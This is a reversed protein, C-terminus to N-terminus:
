GDDGRVGVHRDDWLELGGRIGESNEVTSVRAVVEGLEDLRVHRANGGGLYLHDFASLVDFYDIARRVRRNWKAHGIRKRAADGLQQNFTDGQRFPVQAFEMHPLMRGDMFFASGVGTGLTLAVELGRGEIVAAGQVDADNAVRCPARLARALAGALDFNGWAAVLAPDVRSGPGKTTVFHPASLVRGRRVQGPFGVAVRDASPLQRALDSLTGVLRDPPMPYTTAVRVREVTMEGRGDLVGAKLGTGGVDFALTLPPPHVEASPAGPRAPADSVSDVRAVVGLARGTTTEGEGVPRLM